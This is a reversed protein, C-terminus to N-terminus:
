SAVAGEPPTAAGGSDGWLDEGLPSSSPNGGGVSLSWLWQGRSSSTQLGLAQKAKEVTKWNHGRDQAQSRLDPVPVPGGALIERLFRMAEHLKVPSRTGETAVTRLVDEAEIDAVGEWEICRGDPIRFALASSTGTVNGGIPLLYRRASDQPDKAVALIMRATAVFAISGGARYLAQREANKTMHMVTVVAVGTEAALQALPALVRRVESDKYTDTGDGLYATLPDIILLGIRGTALAPRIRELDTKLSFLRERRNGEPVLGLVRVLEPNGGSADLRPRVTDAVGDEAQLILV